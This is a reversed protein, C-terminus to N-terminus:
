RYGLRLCCDMYSSVPLFTTWMRLFNLKEENRIGNHAGSFSTPFIKLNQKVVFVFSASMSRVTRVCKMGSEELLPM